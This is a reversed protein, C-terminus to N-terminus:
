SGTGLVPKAQISVGDLSKLLEDAGGVSFWTLHVDGSSSASARYIPVRYSPSTVDDVVEDLEAMIVTDFEVGRLLSERLLTVGPGSDRQTLRATRPPWIPTFSKEDVAQRLYASLTRFRGETRCTLAIRQGRRERSLEAVLRALTREDGVARGTVRGRDISGGAALPVARDPVLSHLLRRTSGNWRHSSTLPKQTDPRYAKEIVKLSAQAATVVVSRDHFVSCRSAFMAAVTHFEPQMDHADDVILAWQGLRSPSRVSRQAVSVLARVWLDSSEVSRDARLGPVMLDLLEWQTLIRVSDKENGMRRVLCIKRLLDPVVILPTDGAARHLLARYIAM